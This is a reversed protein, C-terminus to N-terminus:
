PHLALGKCIKDVANRPGHVAFGVLDLDDTGREAVVGRNDADNGTKFMGESYIATPLDRSVARAHSRALDAAPAAYVLVPLGLLPLYKRGDADVYDEGMLGPHAATIGSALFATVNLRQWSALDDRVVVAIKTLHAM